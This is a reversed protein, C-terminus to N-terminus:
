AASFYLELIGQQLLTGRSIKLCLFYENLTQQSHCHPLTAAEDAKISLQDAGLIGYHQRPLAQHNHLTGFGFGRTDSHVHPQLVTSLAELAQLDFLHLYDWVLLVDIPKPQDHDLPLAMGERLAKVIDLFEPTQGDEAPQIDALVDSCDTFVLSVPCDLQSFFNVTNADGPGLDVVTLKECREEFGSLAEGLLRTAVGQASPTQDPTAKKARRPDLDRLNQRRSFM